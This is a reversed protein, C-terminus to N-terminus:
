SCTYFPNQPYNNAEGPRRAHRVAGEGLLRQGRVRPLLGPPPLHSLPPPPPPLRGAAPQTATLYSSGAGVLPAATVVWGRGARVAGELFLPSSSPPPPPTALSTLTASPPPPYSVEEGSWRQCSHQENDVTVINYYNVNNRVGTGALPCLPSM